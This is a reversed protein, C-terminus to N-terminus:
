GTVTCLVGVILLTTNNAFLSDGVLKVIRFKKGGVLAKKSRIHQRIRNMVVVILLMPHLSKIQRVKEKV